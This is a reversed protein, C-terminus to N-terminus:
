CTIGGDVVLTQGTVFSAKESCLFLVSEAIDITTGMRGLPTRRKIRAKDSETLGGVMDSEFYGPAVSNVRIKKVGLERALARTLGDAAAKTASYVAVGSHGRIANVSSIFVVSGNGNKLMLSTVVKTLYLPGTLNLNVCKAIDDFPMTGLVGDLGVGANNVLADIHGYRKYAQMAFSKVKQANTIDVSTWFFDEPNSDLQKKIFDSATRSFTAVCYGEQLARECITQGLGRSGGSILLVKKEKQKSNM